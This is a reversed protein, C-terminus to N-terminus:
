GPREGQDSPIEFHAFTDRIAEVILNAKVAHPNEDKKAATEAAALTDVREFYLKLARLNGSLAERRLVRLAASVPDVKRTKGNTTVTLKEELLLKKELEEITPKKKPRGAVNGSTGPPFRTHIPPRRYGVKYTDSM